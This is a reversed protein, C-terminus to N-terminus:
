VDISTHEYLDDAYVRITEIEEAESETLVMHRSELLPHSSDDGYYEENSVVVLQETETTNGITIKVDYTGPSLDVILMDQHLYRTEFEFSQGGVTLTADRGNPADLWFEVGGRALEWESIRDSILEFEFEIESESESSEVIYPGVSISGLTEGQYVI